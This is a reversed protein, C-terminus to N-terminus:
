EGDRKVCFYRTTVPQASGLADSANFQRRNWCFDAYNSIISCQLWRQPSLLRPQVAFSRVLLKLFVRIAPNRPNREKWPHDPGLRCAIAVVGRVREGRRQRGDAM